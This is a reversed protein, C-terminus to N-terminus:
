LRVDRSSSGLLDGARLWVHEVIAALHGSRRAIENLRASGTGERMLRAFGRPDAAAFRAEARWLKKFSPGGEVTSARRQMRANGRGQAWGRRLVWRRRLRDELIQHSVVAGPAYEIRVGRAWLRVFLDHEDSSVLSRGRRGLDTAFGGAAILESRRVSMNTGYPGHPPPFPVAQPGLDLASFWHELEAGLWAPRGDPWTLLVPGGVAGVASEARYCSLHAAVWQESALADDDVFLVVDNCAVEVGRNRARSLGTREERVARRRAPDAAAWRRLWGETGDTSGNDVVIVEFLEPPSEQRTLSELCDALARLRDRTCVVV